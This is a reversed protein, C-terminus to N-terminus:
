RNVKSQKKNVSKILRRLRERRKFKQKIVGLEKEEDQREQKKKKEEANGIVTLQTKGKGGEAGQDVAKVQVRIIM